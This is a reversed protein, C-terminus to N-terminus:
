IHKNITQNKNKIKIYIPHHAFMCVCVFDTINLINTTANAPRITVNNYLVTFNYPISINQINKKQTNNKTQYIVCVCVYIYIFQARLLMLQFILLLRTHFHFFSYKNKKQKFTFYM